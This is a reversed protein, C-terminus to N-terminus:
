FGVSIEGVGNFIVQLAPQTLTPNTCNLIIERVAFLKNGGWNTRSHGEILFMRHTVALCAVNYATVTSRSQVLEYSTLGTLLVLSPM